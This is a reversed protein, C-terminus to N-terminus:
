VAEEKKLRHSVWSSILFSAVSSNVANTSLLQNGCSDRYLKKPHMRLSYNIFPIVRLLTWDWLSFSLRVIMRGNEMRRRGKTIGEVLNWLNNRGGNWDADSSYPLIKMTEEMQVEMHDIIIGRIWWNMWDIGEEMWASEWRWRKDYRKLLPSNVWSSDGGGKRGGRWEDMPPFCENTQGDSVWVGM